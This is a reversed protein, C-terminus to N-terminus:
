FLSTSTAHGTAIAHRPDVLAESKRLIAGGWCV